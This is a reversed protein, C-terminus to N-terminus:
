PPRFHSPARGTGGRAGGVGESWRHGETWCNHTSQHELLEVINPHLLCRVSDSHRGEDASLHAAELHRGSKGAGRGCPPTERRAKKGGLHLRLNTRPRHQQRSDWVDQVRLSQLVEQLDVELLAATSSTFNQVAQVVRQAAARLGHETAPAPNLRQLSRGKVHAFALSFFRM